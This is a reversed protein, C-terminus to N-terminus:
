LKVVEVELVPVETFILIPVILILMACLWLISKTTPFLLLTKGGYRSIIKQEFLSKISFCFPIAINVEETGLPNVLNVANSLLNGLPFVLYPPELVKDVCVCGMEAIVVVEGLEVAILVEPPVDIGEASCM